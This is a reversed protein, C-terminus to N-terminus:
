PAVRRTTQALWSRLRAAPVPKSLWPHGSAKVEALRMASSAGSLLLAPLAEGCSARLTRIAEIGNRGDRLQYDVLAAHLRREPCEGARTLM